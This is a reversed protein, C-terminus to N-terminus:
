RRRGWAVFGSLLFLVGPTTPTVRLIFLQATLAGLMVTALLAAGVSRTRPVMILLAGTLELVGTVYRLWQGVGVTVARPTAGITGLSRDGASM